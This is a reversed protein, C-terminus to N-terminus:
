LTSKGSGEIGDILFICDWDKSMILKVNDLKKKLLNDLYITEKNILHNQGM